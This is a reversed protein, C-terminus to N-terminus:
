SVSDGAVWNNLNSICVVDEVCGEGEESQKGWIGDVM